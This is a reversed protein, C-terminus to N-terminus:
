ETCKILVFGLKEHTVADVMVIFDRDSKRRDLDLSRMNGHQDCSLAEKATM